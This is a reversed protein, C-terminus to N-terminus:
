RAPDPASALMDIYDDVAEQFAARLGDADSAHFGVGAPIDAVHGTLIEDESDFVVVASYGRHEM